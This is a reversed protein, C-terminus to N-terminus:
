LANSLCTPAGASSSLGSTPKQKTFVLLALM